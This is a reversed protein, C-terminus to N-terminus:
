RVILIAVFCSSIIVWNGGSIKAAKGVLVSYFIFDGLGLKFGRGIFLVKVMVILILKRVASKREEEEEENENQEASDGERNPNEQHAFERVVMARNTDEDTDDGSSSQGACDCSIRLAIVTDVEGSM